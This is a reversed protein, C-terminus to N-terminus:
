KAHEKWRGKEDKPMIVEKRKAIAQAIPIGKHVPSECHDTDTLIVIKGLHKGKRAEVICIHCWKEEM